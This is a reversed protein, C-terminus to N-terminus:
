QNIYSIADGILDKLAKGQKATLAKTDDNTTLNDVLQVIGSTSTSASPLSSIYSTTDITGDNKVLGTTNSTQIYTNTDITGDNKILGSTNSKKIIDSGDTLDSSSSPISPKDTLDDYDGTTAVTALSPKNSLDSYSGTTAVTALSPKNSLDNYSGSTAVTSLSSTNAKTDLTTKTLKESPVKEDSLTSEWSTVIDAGGGSVNINGQGLVSENNITKINTGSVLTDQKGTLVQKVAKCTPYSDDDTSYDADLTTKKNSQKEYVQDLATKVKRADQIFKNTM